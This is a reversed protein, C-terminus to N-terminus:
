AVEAKTSFGNVAWEHQYNKKSYTIKLDNICFFVMKFTADLKKQIGHSSNFVTKVVFVQCIDKFVNHCICFLESQDISNNSLLTKWYNWPRNDIKRWKNPGKPGKFPLDAQQVDYWCWKSTKNCKLVESETEKIAYLISGTLFWLPM